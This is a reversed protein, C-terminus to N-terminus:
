SPELKQLEKLAQQYDQMNDLEIEGIAEQASIRQTSDDADLIILRYMKLARPYDQIEFRVIRAAESLYKYKTVNNEEAESSRILLDTAIRFHGKEIEQYAEEYLKESRQVCAVLMM